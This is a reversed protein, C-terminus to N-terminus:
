AHAIVTLTETFNYIVTYLAVMRVHTEFKKSLSNILSTFRRMHIRITVDQRDVYSKNIRKGGPAGEIVTKKIGTCETPSYKGQLTGPANGYM